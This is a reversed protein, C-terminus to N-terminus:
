HRQSVSLVVLAMCLLIPSRVDGEGEYRGSVERMLSPDLRVSNASSVIWVFEQAPSLDVSDRRSPEFPKVVPKGGHEFIRTVDTLPSYVEVDAMFTIHPVRIQNCTKIRHM